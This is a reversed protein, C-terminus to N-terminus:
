INRKIKEFQSGSNVLNNIKFFKINLKKALLEDTLQDGVLISKNLKIPWKKRTLDVMGTNPKRMLYDRRSFKKNNKFYPAMFFEDIHAGKEVLKKQVWLHLKVVDKKKYFGRGIGSQNTIVFVYYSNDNFYKIFNFIGNKWKFDKIKHVYNLDENIVGDRDLFVAPKNTYRKIKKLSKKFDSPTGIDLFNNKKSNYFITQIKKRKLLKPFIDIELYVARSKFYKFIEKRFIYVGANVINKKNNFKGYRKGIKNTTAICAYKNPNFNLSLDLYNIDFITDGNLVLFQKDLKNQILKLGGGTGRPKKENICVVVSSLFKKKHYKKQFLSYKYSCILFIKKIGHRALNLIQYEIFPKGNVKLLPKPTKKTLVGLRTGLGGCLIVAHNM